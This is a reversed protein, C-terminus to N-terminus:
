ERRTPTASRRSTSTRRSLSPRASSTPAPTTAGWLRGSSTTSTPRRLTSAVRPPPVSTAPRRPPRRSPGPLGVPPLRGAPRAPGRDRGPHRRRLRPEPALHRVAGVRRVALGGPPRRRLEDPEDHVPARGREAPDGLEDPLAPGPRRVHRRGLPRDAHADGALGIGTVTTGARTGARNDWFINNFLLPNSFTPSGGPLTAQLQDSNRRPPSLRGPGAPRQLHGRHGDHPEEHDHQQLGAREPADNLSIGGGEHTSVNNAIMNNYVNM